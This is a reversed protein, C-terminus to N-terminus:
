NVNTSSNIKRVWGIFNSIDMEKRDHIRCIKIKPKGKKAASMRQKSLESKPVGKHAAGIKKRAEVSHSIGKNPATRGKHIGKGSASIKSRHEESLILGHPNGDLGNEPKLNAWENSETINHLKSFTLAYEILKDKETFLQCWITSVQRGHKKLHARWYTGSGLYRHPDKSSTKGFYKLGTINHQKIYLWTPTFNNQNKSPLTSNYISM